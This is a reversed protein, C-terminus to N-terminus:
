AGAALVVSDGDLVHRVEILKRHYALLLFPASMRIDTTQFYCSIKDDTTLYVASIDLMLPLFSLDSM